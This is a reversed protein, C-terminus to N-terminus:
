PEFKVLWAQIGFQKEIARQDELVKEKLVKPGVFVRYNKGKDINASRVFAHFDAKILRESLEEANSRDKFSGVQLVWAEPLGAESLRPEAGSTDAKSSSPSGKEEPPSEQVELAFIHKKSVPIDAPIEARAIQVPEITPAPPIRSTTDVKYSGGLDLLMPLFVVGMAVLVLAGVVRQRLGTNM